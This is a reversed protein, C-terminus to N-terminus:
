FIFVAQCACRALKVVSHVKEKLRAEVLLHPSSWRKHKRQRTETLLHLGWWGQLSM